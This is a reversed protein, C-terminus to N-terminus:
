QKAASGAYINGDTAAFELINGGQAVEFALQSQSTSCGSPQSATPTSTVTGTGAASSQVSYTGSLTVTCTQTTGAFYSTATGGSVKGAGDFSITGITESSETAGSSHYPQVFHFSYTGNLSANSYGSQALV